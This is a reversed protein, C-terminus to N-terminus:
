RVAWYGGCIHYIFLDLQGVCGLAPSHTLDSQGLHEPCRVDDARIHRNVVCVGQHGISIFTWSHGGINTVALVHSRALLVIEQHVLPLM